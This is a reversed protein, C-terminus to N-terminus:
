LRSGNLKKCILPHAFAGAKLIAVNDYTDIVIVISENMGESNPATSFKLNHGAIIAFGESKLIEGTGEWCGTYACVSMAGSDDVNVDMPTFGNDIQAECKKSNCTIELDNKCNWSEAQANVAFITLFIIISLKM